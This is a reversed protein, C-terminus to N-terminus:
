LLMPPATAAYLGREPSKQGKAAESAARLAGFPTQCVCRSLSVSAPSM